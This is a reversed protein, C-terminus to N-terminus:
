LPCIEMNGETHFQDKTLETLMLSLVEGKAKEAMEKNQFGATKYRPDLLTAVTTMPNEEIHMFHKRSDGGELYQHIQNLLADKMTGIGADSVENIEYKLKKTLPIVDAISATDSEAAKSANNIPALLAIVKPVLDWDNPTMKSDAMIVLEPDDEALKIGQKQELAREIMTLTSGWRTECDLILVNHPVGAQIQYKKFIAKAKPKQLKRVLKRLRLLMNKIGRQEFISHKVILHLIHCFCGIGQYRAMEVALVINKANDRVIAHIKNLEWDKFIHKLCCSINSANHTTNYRICRLVALKREFDTTIWHATISMFSDNSPSSWIDTTIAFAGSENSRLSEKIVFQVKKDLDPILKTRITKESPVKFKKCLHSIFKLFQVNEVTEYPKLGDCLWYTLLKEGEIQNPDSLDWTKSINM